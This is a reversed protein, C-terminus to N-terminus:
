RFYYRKPQVRASDNLARVDRLQVNPQSRHLIVPDPFEDTGVNGAEDRVELRLYLQTPMQSDLKWTYDGTNTLNAAIPMWPGSPSNSYLLAIPQAALMRDEAQWRIVLQDAKNGAAPEAELIKATPRTLDVGIWFQPVEGPQPTRGAAGNQLGLRFGYLGEQKVTVVLPSRGDEDTGFSSWTKGGDLTGWLEIRETPAKGTASINYNVEFLRSNVMRPRTGGPFSNAPAILSPSAAPPGGAPVFQNRIPPNIRSAVTASTPPTAPANRWGTSAAVGPRDGRGNPGAAAVPGSDLNVQAHTVTINGALDAAEARIEVRGAGLKPWWSLEGSQMAETGSISSRDIAVTQWSQTPATRYQIQLADLNLHPETVQWRALIQGAEGRRADLQLVPQVTDVIVVLGPNSNYQPHIRGARDVTRILFWYEGDGRARFLFHGKTPEVRSYLDWRAGRTTSVHLQVETAQRRPDDTKSIQFPISFASQRTAIPKPLVASPGTWATAPEASPAMLVLLQALSALWM